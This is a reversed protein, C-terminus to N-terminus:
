AEEAALRRKFLLDLPLDLRVFDDEKHNHHKDDQAAEGDNYIHAELHDILTQTGM